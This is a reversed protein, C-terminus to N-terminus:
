SRGIETTYVVTRLVRAAQAQPYAKFSLREGEKVVAQVSVTAQLHQNHDEASRPGDQARAAGGQMQIVADLTGLGGLAVAVSAVM